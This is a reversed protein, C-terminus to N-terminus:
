IDLETYVRLFGDVKNFTIHLLKSGILNKYSVKYVLFNEYSKEDILINEHDFDEFKIIKHFYHCMSIKINIEKSKDNSEM